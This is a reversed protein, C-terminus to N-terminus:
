YVVRDIEDAARVKPGKVPTSAWKWLSDEKEEFKKLFEPLHEFAFEVGKSLVEIQSASYGKARLHKKLEAAIEAAKEEIKASVAM